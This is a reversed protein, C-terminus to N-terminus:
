GTPVGLSAGGDVRLVQGTIYGADRSLLFEIAAAVESVDGVREQPITSLVRREAASGSPRTRRFLETDIPGPAVANSTIGDRAFEMAWTRACGELASKAASYATRGMAGRTARSSLTVIRGYGNRIMGPVVWRSMQIAARVNLDMVIAYDDWALDQLRSPLVIGANNVLGAFEYKATLAAMTSDVAEIDLLDCEVHHGPLNKPRSRSLGIVEVGDAHLREVLAAGIGRSAGTVLIPGVVNRM